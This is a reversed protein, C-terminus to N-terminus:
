DSLIISVIVGCLERGDKTWGWGMKCFNGSEILTCDWIDQTAEWHVISTTIMLNRVSHIVM